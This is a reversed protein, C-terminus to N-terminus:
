SVVWHLKFMLVHIFVVTVCLLLDNQGTIFSNWLKDDNFMLLLMNTFIKWTNQTLFSIFVKSSISGISALILFGILKCIINQHKWLVDHKKLLLQLKLNLRSIVSGCKAIIVLLKSREVDQQKTNSVISKTPPSNGM